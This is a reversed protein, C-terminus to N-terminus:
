LTSSVLAASPGGQLSTAWVDVGGSMIRAMRMYLGILQEEQRLALSPASPIYSARPCTSVPGQVAYWSQLTNEVIPRSQDISRIASTLLDALDKWTGTHASQINWAVIADVPNLRAAAKRCQEEQFEMFEETAFQLSTPFLQQISAIVKLKHRAALQILYDFDTEDLGGVEVRICNFGADAIQRIDNEWEARPLTGGYDVGIPFFRDMDVERITM